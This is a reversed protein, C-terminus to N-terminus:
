PWRRKHYRVSKCCCPCVSVAQPTLISIPALLASVLSTVAVDAFLSEGLVVVTGAVGAVVAAVVPSEVAAAVGAALMLVLVAFSSDSSSLASTLSASSDTV